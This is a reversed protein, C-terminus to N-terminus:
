AGYELPQYAPGGRLDAVLREVQRRLLPRIALPEPEDRCRLPRRLFKEWEAFVRQLGARTLRVGGPREPDAEFTEPRVMRLNCLRLVFRDVVPHRFEELLDLALGARGPKVEHYVGLAPDLGRAELLDALQNGLMVYGLSLLANAPDPPPHQARGGFPIEGRFAQGLTEFYRRAGTGELGLLTEVAGAQEAQRALALLAADTGGPVPHDHYHAFCDALVRAANRLKAAVLRRARALRAAPDTAIGYQALRLDASRPAAPVLRGRLRGGFTFWAVDIGQDLCFRTADATIHVDGILAVRELQHPILQLLEERRPPGNDKGADRTVVLSGAQLRLTARPETLYLTPM